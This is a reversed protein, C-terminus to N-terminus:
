KISRRILNIALLASRCTAQVYGAKGCNHCIVPSRTMQSQGSGSMTVQPSRPPLGETVSADKEKKKGPSTMQESGSSGNFRSKERIRRKEENQAEVRQAANVLRVYSDYGEAALGDRISPILDQEFQDCKETETFVMTSAFRSLVIFRAEYEVM